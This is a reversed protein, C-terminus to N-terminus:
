IIFFCEPELLIDSLNSIKSLEESFVAFDPFDSNQRIGWKVVKMLIM